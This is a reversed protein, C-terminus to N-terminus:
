SLRELRRKVDQFTYQIGLIAAYLKRAQDRDADGGTNELFRAQQYFLDLTGREMPTGQTAREHMRRAMGPDGIRDFAIALQSSAERFRPHEPVVQQLADIARALDGNALFENGAEFWAGLKVAVQAANKWHNALLYQERAAVLDGADEFVKAAAAHHGQRVLLSAADGLQGGELSAAVAGALDNKKVLLEAAREPFGAERLAKALEDDTIPLGEARLRELVKLRLGPETYLDAARRLKGAREFAQAAANKDKGELFREAATEFQGAELWLRASDTARGAGQLAAACAPVLSADDQTFSGKAEAQLRLLCEAAMLPEQCSLYLSAAKGWHGLERYLGAAELIRGADQYMRAADVARDMKRYLATARELDGSQELVRAASVSDNAREYLDAAEPLRGLKEALQAAQFLAGEELFIEFAEQLKGAQLFAEAALRREGAKLYRAATKAPNLQRAAWRRRVARALRWGLLLVLLLLLGVAVWDLNYEFWYPRIPAFWSSWVMQRYWNMQHLWDLPDFAPLSLLLRSFWVPAMM